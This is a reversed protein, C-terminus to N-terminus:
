DEMASAFDNILLEPDDIEFLRESIPQLDYDESQTRYMMSKVSEIVMMLDYASMPNDSLNFGYEELFSVLDMTVTMAIDDFYDINQNSAYEGEIEQKLEEVKRKKDRFESLVVVKNESSDTM